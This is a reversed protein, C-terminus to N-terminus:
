PQSVKPKETQAPKLLEPQPEPKKEYIDRIAPREGAMSVGDAMMVRTVAETTPRSLKFGGGRYGEAIFLPTLGRENKEKWITSDAAHKALLEVVTPFNGYAAGHM